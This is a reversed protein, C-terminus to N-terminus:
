ASFNFCRVGMENPYSIRQVLQFQTLISSNKNVRYHSLCNQQKKQRSKKVDRGREYLVGICSDEDNCGVLYM